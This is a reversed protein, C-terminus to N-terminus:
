SGKVNAFISSPRTIPLTLLTSTSNGAQIARERGSRSPYPNWADVRLYFGGWVDRGDTMKVQGGKSSMVLGDRCKDLIALTFKSLDGYTFQDTVFLDDSTISVFCKDREHFRGSRTFVYPANAGVLELVDYKRSEELFWEIEDNCQDQKLTPALSYKFCEPTPIISLNAPHSSIIISGQTSNHVPISRGVNAIFLLAFLTSFRLAHFSMDSWRVLTFRQISCRASLSWWLIAQVFCPVSRLTPTAHLASLLKQM